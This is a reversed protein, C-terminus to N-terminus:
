RKFIIVIGFAQSSVSFCVNSAPIYSPVAVNFILKAPKLFVLCASLIARRPM